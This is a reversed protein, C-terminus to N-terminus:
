RSDDTIVVPRLRLQAWPVRLNPHSLPEPGVGTTGAGAHPEEFALNSSSSSSSAGLDVNPVQRRALAGAEMDSSLPEAPTTPPESAAPTRWTTTWDSFTAILREAYADEVM